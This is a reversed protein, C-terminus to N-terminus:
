STIALAIKFLLIGSACVKKLILLWEAWLSSSSILIPRFKTKSLKFFFLIFSAESSKFFMTLQMIQRIKFDRIYSFIEINLVIEPQYFFQNINM